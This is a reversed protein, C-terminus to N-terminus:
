NYNVLAEGGGILMIEVDLLNRLVDETVSLEQATDFQHDMKM